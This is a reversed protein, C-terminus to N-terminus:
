VFFTLLTSFVFFARLTLVVLLDLVRESEVTDPGGKVGFMGEAYSGNKVGEMVAAYSVM